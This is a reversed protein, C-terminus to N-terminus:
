VVFGWICTVVVSLASLFFFDIIMTPFTLVEEIWCSMSSNPFIDCPYLHDSHSFWCSRILMYTVSWGVIFYYMKKEIAQLVNILYFFFFMGYFLAQCIYFLQFRVSHSSQNYHFWVSIRYCLWYSVRLVSPFLVDCLYNHTLSM